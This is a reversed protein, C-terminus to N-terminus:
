LAEEYTEDSATITPLAQTKAKSSSKSSQLDNQLDSHGPRLHMKWLPSPSANSVSSWVLFHIFHPRPRRADESAATVQNLPMSLDAVPKPVIDLCWAPVPRAAEAKGYAVTCHCPVGAGAVSSGLNYMTQRPWSCKQSSVRSYCHPLRGRRAKIEIRFEAVIKIPFKM